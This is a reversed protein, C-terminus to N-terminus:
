LLEGPVTAAFSPRYNLRIHDLEKPLLFLMGDVRLYEVTCNSCKNSGDLRHECIPCMIYNVNDVRQFRRSNCTYSVFSDKSRDQLEDYQILSTALRKTMPLAIWRLPGLFLRKLVAPTPPGTCRMLLSFVACLFFTRESLYSESRVIEYSESVIANLQSRELLHQWHASEIRSSVRAAVTKLGLKSLAYPTVWGSAWFRTNENFV